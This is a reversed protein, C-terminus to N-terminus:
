LFIIIFPTVTAAVNRLPTMCAPPDRDLKRFEEKMTFAMSQLDAASMRKLDESVSGDAGHLALVTDWIPGGAKRAGTELARREQDTWVKPKVPVRRCSDNSDSSISTRASQALTKSRQMLSSIRVASILPADSDSSDTDSSSPSVRLALGLRMRQLHRRHKRSAIDDMIKQVRVKQAEVDYPEELGDRIRAKRTRWENMTDSDNFNDEPEWTNRHEDYGQWKVLYVMRGDDEREALIGGDIVYEEEEASPATSTLSICDDDDSLAANTSRPRVM